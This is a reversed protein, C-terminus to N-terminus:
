ENEEELNYYFDLIKDVIRQLAIADDVGLYDVLKEIVQMSETESNGVAIIGKKSLAILYSRHDNPNVIREIYGLKELNNVFQTAASASINYKEKIMSIPIPGEDTLQHLIMLHHFPIKHTKHSQKNFIKAELLRMKKFNIILSEAIKIKNDEM